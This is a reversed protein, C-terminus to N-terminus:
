LAEEVIGCIMHGIAIHMEQIHNTDPSPTRILYDCLGDMAGGGQGTLGVVIMNQSTAQKIAELINGSNGSTSIAVLVDSVNGLAKIQRSFIHNFSYDNSVATLVSTDVTLAIAPLPSRDRKYRGMLEAALHQADAASGGNGCFLIKNGKNVADLIVAATAEIASSQLALQAFNESVTLCYNEINSAM